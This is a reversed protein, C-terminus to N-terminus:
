RDGRTGFPDPARHESPTEKVNDTSGKIGQSGTVIQEPPPPNGTPYPTRPGIGQMEITEVPGPSVESASAPGVGLLESSTDKEQETLMDDPVAAFTKPANPDPSLTTNAPHNPDHDRNAYAPRHEEHLREDRGREADDREDKRDRLYQASEKRVREEHEERARKDADNTPNAM